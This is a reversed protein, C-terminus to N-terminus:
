AADPVDAPSDTPGPETQPVPGTVRDSRAEELLERERVIELEWKESGDLRELRDLQSGAEDFRGTRRLLTALMLGADLDRPSKALLGLLVHESEFWNGKLYHNLAEIFPDKASGKDPPSPPRSDWWYSFVASSGWIVVVALWVLNRVGPTLLESWLLSAMVALNLLAAFGVASALGSWSGQTWIQPLGPWLYVAWPKRGM